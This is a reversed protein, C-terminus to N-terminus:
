GLGHTEVGLIRIREASTQQQLFVKFLTDVDISWTYQQLVHAMRDIMRTLYYECVGRLWIDM